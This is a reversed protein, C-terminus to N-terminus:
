NSVSVSAEKFRITSAAIGFDASLNVYSAIERIGIKIIAM